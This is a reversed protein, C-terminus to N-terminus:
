QNGGSRNSLWSMSFQYTSWEKETLIRKLDSDEIKLLSLVIRLNSISKELDAMTRENESFKEARKYSRSFTDINISVLRLAEQISSCQAKERKQHKLYYDMLFRVKSGRGKVNKGDFKAKDLLEIHDKSLCISVNKAKQVKEKSPRGKGRKIQPEESTATPMQEFFEFIVKGLRLQNKRKEDAESVHVTPAVDLNVKAKEEILVSSARREKSEKLLSRLALKSSTTDEM